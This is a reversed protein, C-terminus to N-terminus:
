ESFLWKLFFYAGIARVVVLLVDEASGKVEVPMYRDEHPIALRFEVPRQIAKAPLAKREMREM